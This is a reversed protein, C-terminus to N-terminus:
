LRRVQRLPDEHGPKLINKRPPVYNELKKREEEARLRDREELFLDRMPHWTVKDELSSMWRQKKETYRMTVRCRAEVVYERVLYWFLVRNLLVIPPFIGIALIVPSQGKLIDLLHVVFGAMSVLLIAMLVTVVLDNVLWTTVTSYCRSIRWGKRPPHNRQDILARKKKIVPGSESECIWDVLRLGTALGGGVMLVGIVVEMWPRQFSAYVGCLLAIFLGSLIHYQWYIVTMKKQFSKRRELGRLYIPTLRSLTSEIAEREIEKDRRSAAREKKADSQDRIWGQIKSLPQSKKPNINM